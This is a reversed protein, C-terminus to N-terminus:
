LRQESAMYLGPNADSLGARKDRPRARGRAASMGGLAPRLSM